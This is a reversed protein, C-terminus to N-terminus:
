YSICFIFTIDTINKITPRAPHPLDGEVPFELIAGVDFHALFFEPNASKFVVVSVSADAELAKSFKLLEVYLPKTILNLPPNDITVWLVRGEQEVTLHQYEYPM